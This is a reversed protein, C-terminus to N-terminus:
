SVKIVGTAPGGFDFRLETPPYTDLKQSVNMNVLNGSGDYIWVKMTPVVGYKAVMSATYPITLTAANTFSVFTPDCEGTNSEVAGSNCYNFGAFNDDNSYEVVSTHCDSGIRQFCNSCFDNSGAVIVKIKFCDGINFISFANPLGHSWNYLVQFDSLRFRDPKEEFELLYGDNCDELIGVQVQSNGLDCLVEAEEITDAEVVFQFSTEDELFVPLCFTQDRYNCNGAVDNGNSFQVFSNSPSVIRYSM